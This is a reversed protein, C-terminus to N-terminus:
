SGTPKSGAINGMRQSQSPHTKRRLAVIKDHARKNVGKQEGVHITSGPPEVSSSEQTESGDEEMDLTQETEVQDPDLEKLVDLIDDV